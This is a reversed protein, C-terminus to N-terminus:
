SRPEASTQRSSMLSENGTTIRRWNNGSCYFRGLACAEVRLTNRGKMNMTGYYTDGSAQSYVSGTWQKESKPKMNILVAEGKDNSSSNLVYGCLANGCKAVRVSGKGETQWDGVPTDADDAFDHSVRSIQPVVVPTPRAPEAPKAIPPAPPPPPAPPVALTAPPAPSQPAPVIQTAAAAPRYVAPPPATVSQVLPPAVAPATPLTRTSESIRRDDRYRDDDNYRDRDDYRGRDDYRDRDNYRGRDDYRSRNRSTGSISVSACSTSRCYRSSDIQIRHGGVVFSISDGAYASPSLLMLAALFCFRKM